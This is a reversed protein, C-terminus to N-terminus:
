KWYTPIDGGPFLLDGGRLMSKAWPLKLPSTGRDTSAARAMAGQPELAGQSLLLEPLRKLTTASSPSLHGHGERGM